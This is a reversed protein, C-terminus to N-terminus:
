KFKIKIESPIDKSWPLLESAPKSDLNKFIYNLYGEVYLGNARATQVISFLIGTAKAGNNSKCFLFAKRSVAFPKVARECLSNSIDLGGYKQVTTFENWNNKLYRCAKALKTGQAPNLSEVYEKLDTLLKNYKITNRHRQIQEKTYKKTKFSEELKFIEGIMQVVKYAASSAPKMNNTAKKKKILISPDVEVFLRRLHTNDSNKSLM